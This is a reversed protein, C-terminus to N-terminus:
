LYLSTLVAFAFRDATMHTAGFAALMWGLYLPHRVLRYPGTIQLGGGDAPRRIGALELADIARVSSAILGIGALQLAGHISARWGHVDWVEGCVPRWLSCVAFLLASATWVYVSRLLPEPVIGAVIRKVRERALLSHHVAFVTVLLADPVLSRWGGGGGVCAAGWVVVYSYACYALSAVFMAGGLWVFVRQSNTLQHIPSSALQRIRPTNMRPM